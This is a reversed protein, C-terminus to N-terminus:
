VNSLVCYSLFVGSEQFRSDQFIYCDSVRLQLLYWLHQQMMTIYLRLYQPLILYILHEGM